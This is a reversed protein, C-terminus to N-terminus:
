ALTICEKKQYKVDLFNTNVIGNFKIYGSMQLLIICLHKIINDEQYVIFYKFGDDTHKIKDSIVIKNIDVLNLDISQKSKHFEKRDIEIKDFKLTKGSM